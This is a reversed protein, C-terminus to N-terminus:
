LMGVEADQMAKIVKLQNYEANEDIKNFRDKLSDLVEEGFDIIDKHIGFVEYMSSM